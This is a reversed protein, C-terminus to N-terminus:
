WEVPRISEFLATWERGFRPAPGDYGRKRLASDITVVLARPRSLMAQTVQLYHQHLVDSAVTGGLDD